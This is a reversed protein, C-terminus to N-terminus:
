PQSPVKRSSAVPLSSVLLETKAGSSIASLTDSLAEKQNSSCSRNYSCVSSENKHGSMYMIQRLEFGTDSMGQIATARLHVCHATYSKSCKANKAIDSMFRSFQYQKVSKISYWIHEQDPSIQADNSYHNFLCTTRPDTKYILLKLNRVSCKNCNSSTYM